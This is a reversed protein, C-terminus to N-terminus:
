LYLLYYFFILLAVAEIITILIIRIEKNWKNEWEEEKKRKKQEKLEIRRKQCLIELEQATIPKEKQLKEKKKKAEETTKLNTVIHSEGIEEDRRLLKQEELEKQKRRVIANEDATVIRSCQVVSDEIILNLDCTGDMDCMDLLNSRLVVSDKITINVVRNMSNVQSEISEKLSRGIEALLGTLAKANQTAAFLEITQYEALISVKIVIDEKAVKTKSYYWIEWTNEDRTHLTRVHIVDHKQVIESSLKVLKKVDFGSQIEYVRSDRCPLFEILEKLIGVNIDQDSKMIPCIVEIGLPEMFVHNLKGQYDKYTVQCNIDTGRSCILPDFYVAVSKSNWSNINELLLKDRKITYEPEYKEIRLLEDDFIFDLFVDTIVYPSDNSVSMKFRIYGQYYETERTIKIQQDLLSVKKILQQM